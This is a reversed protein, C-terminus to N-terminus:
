FDANLFLIDQQFLDGKGGNERCEGVVEKKKFNYSEMFEIVEEQLPAGSNYPKLSTEMVIVKAQTFTEVGGKFIDLESGQTDMKVFDFIVKNKNLDDLRHCKLSTVIVNSDNYHETLERYISSGTCTLNKKNKYFNVEKNESGLLCIHYPAGVARLFPECDPNGEILLCQCSPFEQIIKTYFEGSHAGIDLVKKPTIYKKIIEINM